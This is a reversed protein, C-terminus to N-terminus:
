ESTFILKNRSSPQTRFYHVNLVGIYCVVIKVCKKERRQEEREMSENGVNIAIAGTFTQWISILCRRKIISLEKKEKKPGTLEKVSKLATPGRRADVVYSLPSDVFNSVIPATGLLIIKKSYFIDNNDFEFIIIM